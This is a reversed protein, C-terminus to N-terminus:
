PSEPPAKRTRRFTEGVPESIEFIQVSHDRGEVSHPGLPNVKFENGVLKATEEEILILTNTKKNLTQLRAAVNVSDGIATYDWLQDSGVNGVVSNGSAIGIRTEQLANPLDKHEECFKELRAQTIVATRCAGLAAKEPDDDFAGFIAMIGDGLYKDLYGGNEIIVQTVIEMYENLIRVVREPSNGEVFHTFGHVDSFFVTVYRRAGGLAAQGPNQILRDVLEPSLYHQFMNRVVRKERNEVILQYGSIFLYPILMALVPVVVPLVMRDSSFLMFTATIYGGILLFAVAEAVGPRGFTAVLIVLFSLLVTIAISQLLSVPHVFRNQLFMNLLTSHFFVGPLDEHTSTAKLDTSATETSGVLVVKGKFQDGLSAMGQTRITDLHDFDGLYSLAWEKADKMHAFGAVDKLIAGFRTVFARQKEWMEPKLYNRLTTGPWSLETINMMGSLAKLKHFVKKIRYAAEIPRYVQRYPFQPFLEGVDGQVWDLQTMGHEDIPVSIQKGEDNSFLLQDGQLELKWTGGILNLASIVGLQSYIRGLHRHVVSSRRNIRDSDAQPLDVSGFFLAGESLVPLPPTLNKRDIALTHLGVAEFSSDSIKESAKHIEEVRGLNLPLVVKGSREIATAFERDPFILLDGFLINLKKEFLPLDERLQMLILDAQDIDEEDLADRAAQINQRVVKLLGSDNGGGVMMQAATEVDAVNEPDLYPREPELFEVDFIIQEVGLATLGEVLRAHVDRHWPWRGLEDPRVSTDDINLHVIREDPPNSPSAEVRLDYSTFEINRFFKVNEGMWGALIAGAVGLVLTTIKHRARSIKM